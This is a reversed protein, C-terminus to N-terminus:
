SVMSAGGISGTPHKSNPIKDKKKTPSGGNSHVHSSFDTTIAMKGGPKMAVHQQQERQKIIEKKDFFKAIKAQKGNILDLTDNFTNIQTYLQMNM